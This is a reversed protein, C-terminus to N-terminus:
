QDNNQETCDLIFRNIKNFMMPEIHIYHTGNERETSLIFDWGTWEIYVGDGVYDKKSTM